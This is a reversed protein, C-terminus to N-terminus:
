LYARYAGEGSQEDPANHTFSKERWWQMERGVNAYVVKRKPYSYQRSLNNTNSRFGSTAYIFDSTTDPVPISKSFM